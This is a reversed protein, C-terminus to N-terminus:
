DLRAMSGAKALTEMVKEKVALELPKGQHEALM